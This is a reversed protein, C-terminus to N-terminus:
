SVDWIWLQTTTLIFGSVSNAPLATHQPQHTRVSESVHRHSDKRHKLTVQVLNHTCDPRLYLKMLLRGEGEEGEEGVM